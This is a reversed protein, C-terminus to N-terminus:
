DIDGTLLGCPSCNPEAQPRYLRWAHTDASSVGTTYVRMTGAIEPKNASASLDRLTSNNELEYRNTGSLPNIQWLHTAASSPQATYAGFTGADGGTPTTNNASLQWVDSGFDQYSTVYTNGDVRSNNIHWWQGPTNPNCPVLYVFHTNAGSNSTQANTSLCHLQGDYDQDYHDNVLMYWNEIWTPPSDARAPSPASLAYATGALALLGTLAARLWRNKSGLKM